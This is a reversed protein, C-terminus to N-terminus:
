HTCVKVWGTECSVWAISAHSVDMLFEDHWMYQMDIIRFHWSVVFLTLVGATTEKNVLDSLRRSRNNCHIMVWDSKFTEVRSRVTQSPMTSEEYVNKLQNHIVKATCNDMSPFHIIARQECSSFECGLLILLEMKLAYVTLIILGILISSLTCLWM